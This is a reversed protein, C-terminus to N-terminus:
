ERCQSTVLNLREIARQSGGGEVVGGLAFVADGVGVAQALFRAHKTPSGKTWRDTAADYVAVEAEKEGGGIVVAKGQVGCAPMKVVGFPVPARKVWQEGDLVLHQEDVELGGFLHIEDKVVAAAMGHVPKPLRPGSAWRNTRVDLISVDDLDGGRAGGDRIGRGFGGIVYVFDGKGVAVSHSRPIPLDALQKWANTAPDYCEVVSKGDAGNPGGIIYLKGKAAAGCPYASPTPWPAEETWRNALVNYVNLKAIPEGGSGNGGICYIRYDIAAAVFMHRGIPMRRLADSRTIVECDPLTKKLDAIADSSAWGGTISLSDLKTL